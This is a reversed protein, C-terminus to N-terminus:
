VKEMNLVIFSIKSIIIGKILQMVAHNVLSLNDWYVLKVSGILLLLIIVYITGQIPSKVESIFFFFILFHFGITRVIKPKQFCLLLYM